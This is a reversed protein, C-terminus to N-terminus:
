WRRVSGNEKTPVDVMRFQHRQPKLNYGQIKKEATEALVLGIWDQQEAEKYAEILAPGLYSGSKRDAYVGGFAIAGRFPVRNQLGRRIFNKAVSQIWAYSGDTDDMSYFIFTDSFHAHDIKAPPLLQESDRLAGQYITLLFDLTMKGEQVKKVMDKWGLVDFYAIWRDPFALIKMGKSEM